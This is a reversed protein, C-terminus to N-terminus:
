TLSSYYYSKCGIAMNIALIAIIILIIIFILLKYDVIWNETKLYKFWKPKTNKELRVPPKKFKICM